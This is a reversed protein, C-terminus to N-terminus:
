SMPQQNLEMSCPLTFYFSAGKGVEAEAWVRGGHLHVVRAVAALGIGAGGFQHLRLFAGFLKDAFKMGFGAGNDCVRFVTEEDRPM